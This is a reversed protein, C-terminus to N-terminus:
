ATNSSFVRGRAMSDEPSQLVKSLGNMLQLGATDTPSSTHRHQRTDKDRLQLCKLKKHTIRHPNVPNIYCLAQAILCSASFNRSAPQCSRGLGTFKWAFARSRKCSTEVRIKRENASENQFNQFCLVRRLLDLIILIHQSLQTSDHQQALSTSADSRRM